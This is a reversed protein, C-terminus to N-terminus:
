CGSTDDENENEEKAAKAKVRKRAKKKRRREREQQKAKLMEQKSLGPNYIQDLKDLLIKRAIKRNQTLSRTEQCTVRIGSPKHVLQVNNETKNISQGGPGSGRVFTEEIDEEKLEPIKREKAAKRLQSYYRPVSLSSPTPSTSACILSGFVLVLIFVYKVRRRARRSSEILPPNKITSNNGLETHETIRLKWKEESVDEIKRVQAVNKRLVDSIERTLAIKEEWTKQDVAPTTLLIDNRVKARFANKVPVDGTFTVNCARLFDRYAARASARLSPSLSM